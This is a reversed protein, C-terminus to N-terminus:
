CGNSEMNDLLGNKEEKRSKKSTPNRLKPEFCPTECINMNCCNEITIECQDGPIQPRSTLPTNGGRSVVFRKKIRPRRRLKNMYYTLVIALITLTIVLSSLITIIIGCNFFGGFPTLGELTRNTELCRCSSIEVSDLGPELSMQDKPHDKVIKSECREGESNMCTCYPKGGKVTCQGDNLCYNNCVNQECRLGSFDGSCHCIPLGELSITCNGQLCHNYCISIECNSGSFGPECHCSNDVQIYKGNSSCHIPHNQESDSEETSTTLNNFSEFYTPKALLRQVNKQKSVIECNVIGSNDRTIVSTPNADKFLEFYSRIKRPTNGAIKNKSLTWAANHVWDIWYINESDVSIHVPQQHKGHFIFERNSGDLDSREIKYHIGEEDDMWYLKGTTHDVTVAVPEYLNDKIIITRNSGDLNSREISPNSSNTNGWYLHRNCFDISVARPSNGVLNHVIIRNGLTGDLPMHMKMIAQKLADVWFLTRSVSDFVLGIVHTGNETKFLPELEINKDDIKLRFISGNINKIDSFFITHTTDDYALGAIIRAEAIKTEGLLTGNSSLFDIEQGIAIAMDWSRATTPVYLIASIIVLALCRSDFFVM